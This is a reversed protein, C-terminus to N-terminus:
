PPSLSEQSDPSLTRSALHPQPPSAQQLPCRVAPAEYVDFNIGSDLEEKAKNFIDVTADAEQQKQLEAFPDRGEQNSGWAGGACLAPWTRLLYQWDRRCFKFPILRRAPLTYYTGQWTPGCHPLYAIGYTTHFRAKHTPCPLGTGPLLHPAGSVQCTLAPGMAITVAASKVITMTTEMTVIAAGTTTADETAAELARSAEEMM